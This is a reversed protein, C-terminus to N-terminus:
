SSCACPCQRTWTVPISRNGHNADPDRCVKGREELRYLASRVSSDSIGGGLRDIVDKVTFDEGDRLTRLIKSSISMDEDDDDDDNIFSFGEYEAFSLVAMGLLDEMFETLTTGRESAYGELFFYLDEPIDLSIQNAM